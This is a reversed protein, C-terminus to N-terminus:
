LLSPVTALLGAVSVTTGAVPTMGGAITFPGVLRITAAPLETLQVADDAPLGTGLTWHCYLVFLPVVQILMAPAVADVWENMAATPSEPRCNRATKVLAPPEATVLAAPRVTVLSRGNVASM